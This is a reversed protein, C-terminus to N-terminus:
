EIGNVKEFIERRLRNHLVSIYREEELAVEDEDEELEDSEMHVRNAEQKTLGAEEWKEAEQERLGVEEWEDTEQERM